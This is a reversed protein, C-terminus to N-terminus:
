EEAPWRGEIVFFCSTGDENFHTFTVICKNALEPYQALIKPDDPPLYRGNGDKRMWGEVADIKVPTEMEAGTYPHYRTTYFSWKSPYPIPVGKEMELVLHNDRSESENVRIGKFDPMKARLYSWSHFSKGEYQVLIEHWKYYGEPIYLGYKMGDAKMLDVLLRLTKKQVFNSIDLRNLSAGEFSVPTRSADSIKQNLPSIELWIPAIIEGNPMMMFRIPGTRQLKIVDVVNQTFIEAKVSKGNGASSVTIDLLTGNEGAWAEVAALVLGMLLLVAIVRKQM